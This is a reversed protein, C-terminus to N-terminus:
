LRAEYDFSSWADYWMDMCVASCLFSVYRLPVSHTAVEPCRPEYNLVVPVLFGKRFLKVLITGYDKADNVINERQAHDKQLTVAWSRSQSQAQSQLSAISYIHCALFVTLSM